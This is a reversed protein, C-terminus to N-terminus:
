KWLFVDKSDIKCACENLPKGCAGTYKHSNLYCITCSEQSYPHKEDGYIFSVDKGHSCSLSRRM